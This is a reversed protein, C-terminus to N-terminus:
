EGFPSLPQVVVKLYPDEGYVKRVRADVVLADDRWVVGKLADVMKAINDFDPKGIPRVTGALAADRKKGSWSSPVGMVALVDISVAEDLLPRRGMAVKAQLALAKQYNRTAAPLYISPFAPKGHPKIIRVGSRQWGQPQGRLLVNIPDM